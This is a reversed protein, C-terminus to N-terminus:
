TTNEALKDLLKIDKYQLSINVSAINEELHNMSSTGPIPLISTSHHLLWALSLQAPTIQLRDALNKFTSSDILKKQNGALPFYPIFAVRHEECLRLIDEHERNYVNYNNQVSVFRGMNAATLFQEPEINSLGIYKIKGERQLDLLTKFSEEFPVKPDVTHLQYLDIADLKLCRLSDECAKRLHEPSCDARWIGPGSRILGGKTAILLGRYPFLAEAIIEESVNPGYADATDIFNIGLEVARKLLNVAGERDNPPSWIGEGTIRMAGFGLRNVELKGIRIQGALSANIQVDEM